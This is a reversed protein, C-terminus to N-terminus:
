AADTEDGPDGHYANVAANLEDATFSSPRIPVFLKSITAPKQPGDLLGLLHKATALERTSTMYGRADMKVLHRAEEALIGLLEQEHELDLIRISLLTNTQEAVLARREFAAAERTARDLEHILTRHPLFWDLLM